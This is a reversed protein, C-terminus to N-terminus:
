PTKTLLELLKGPSYTKVLDATRRQQEQDLTVLPCAFRQAV